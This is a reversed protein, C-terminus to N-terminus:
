TGAHTSNGRDRVRNSSWWLEVTLLTWLTLNLDAREDAHADLIARVAKLDGLEAVLGNSRLLHDHAFSRLNGRFWKALPVRFGWKPRKLISPPLLDNAWRRVIWKGVRGRVKMRDPLALGFAVLEKDLFPPRSELSEAM